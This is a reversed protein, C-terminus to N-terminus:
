WRYLNAAELIHRLVLFDRYDRSVSEHVCTFDIPLVHRGIMEGEGGLVVYLLKLLDDIKAEIRHWLHRTHVTVDEHHDIDLRVVEVALALRQFLNYAGSLDNPNTTHTSSVLYDYKMTKLALDYYTYSRRLEDRTFENKKEHILGALDSM